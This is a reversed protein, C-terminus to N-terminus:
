LGILAEKRRIVMSRMRRGQEATFLMRGKAIARLDDDGWFGRMIGHEPHGGDDLLLHGIEHAMMCGLIASRDALNSKELELARPWYVAALSDFGPALRAYGLSHRTRATLKAMASDVIRLHLDLPTVPLDCAADKPPDQQRLRCEAWSLRVGARELIYSAASKAKALTGPSVPAYVYLLVLIDALV